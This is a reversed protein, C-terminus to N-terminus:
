EHELLNKTCVRISLIVYNQYKLYISFYLIGLGLKDHIILYVRELKFPM